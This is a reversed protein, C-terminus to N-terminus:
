INTRAARSIFYSSRHSQGRVKLCVYSQISHSLEIETAPKPGRYDSKYRQIRPCWPAISIPKITTTKPKEVSM